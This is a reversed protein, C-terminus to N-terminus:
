IRPLRHNQLAYGRERYFRFRERAAQRLAPEDPVIEALRAFGEHGDALGATLNVLLDHHEGSATGVALAVAAQADESHLSHPVFAEAKFQWLRADLAQCQEASACLVYVRHGLRWAKDALKCAFDLADHPHASPLLYFDVQPM